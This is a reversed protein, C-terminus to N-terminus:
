TADARRLSYGCRRTLAGATADAEFSVAAAVSVRIGVSLCRGLRVRLSPQHRPPPVPPSHQRRRSACGQLPSTSVIEVVIIEVVVLMVIIAILVHSSWRFNRRRELALTAM